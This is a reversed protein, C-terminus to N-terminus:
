REVFLLIVAILLNKEIETKSIGTKYGSEHSDTTINRMLYEGM